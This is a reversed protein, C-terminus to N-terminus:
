NLVKNIQKQSPLHPACTRTKSEWWPCAVVWPEVTVRRKRVNARPTRLGLTRDANALKAPPDPPSTLHLQFEREMRGRRCKTDLARVCRNYIDLTDWDVAVNRRVARPDSPVASPECLTKSPHSTVSPRLKPRWDSSVPFRVTAILRSMQGSRCVVKLCVRKTTNEHHVTRTLRFNVVTRRSSSQAAIWGTSYNHSTRM